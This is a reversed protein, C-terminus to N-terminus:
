AGIRDGVVNALALAVLTGALAIVFLVRFLRDRTGAVLSTPSSAILTLAPRGDAGLVPRAAVFRTATVVSASSRGDLVATALRQETTVSPQPGSTRAVLGTRSLLAYTPADRGRRLTLYADDLPSVAAVKGLLRLG